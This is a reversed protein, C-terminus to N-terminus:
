LASPVCSTYRCAKVTWCSECAVQNAFFLEGSNATGYEIVLPAADDAARMPALERVAADTKDRREFLLKAHVPLFRFATQELLRL